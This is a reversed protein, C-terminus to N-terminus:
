PEPTPDNGPPPDSPTTASAPAPGFVLTVDADTGPKVTVNATARQAAMGAAPPLWAVLAYTGPPVAHMSLQGVDDTIGAYRHPPALVWTADEDAGDASVRIAGPEDLPVSITHGIVPLQASALTVPALKIDDELWPKGTRVVTVAHATDQTQIELAGGVRPAALAVPDVACDRVTVRVPKADTAPSTDAPMELVVMAGAVGHLTGIRARARRPTHCSTYGPSARVDAPATPWSVKINLNAPAGGAPSPGTPTAADSVDGSGSAGADGADRRPTSTGKAPCAALLGVVALWARAVAV